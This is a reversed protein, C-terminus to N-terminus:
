PTGSIKAQLMTGCLPPFASKLASISASRSRPATNCSSSGSSPLRMPLKKTEVAVETVWSRKACLSAPRSVAARSSTRSRPECSTMSRSKRSLSPSVGSLTATLAPLTSAILSKTPLATVSPGLWMCFRRPAQTEAAVRLAMVWSSTGSTRSLPRQRSLTSARSTYRCIHMGSSAQALRSAMRASSRTCRVSDCAPAKTPPPSPASAAGRRHSSSQPQAAWSPASQPTIHAVAAPTSSRTSSHPAHGRPNASVSTRPRRMAARASTELSSVPFDIRSSAKSRSSAAATPASSAARGALQLLSKQCSRASCNSHRSRDQGTRSTSDVYKRSEGPLRGKHSQTCSPRPSRTNAWRPRSDFPASVASGSTSRSSRKIMAQMLLSISTPFPSQIRVSTSAASRGCKSLVPRSMVDVFFSAAVASRRM